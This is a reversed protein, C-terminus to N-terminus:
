PVQGTQDAPIPSTRTLLRESNWCSVQFKDLHTYYIKVNPLFLKSKCIEPIPIFLTTAIFDSELPAMHTTSRRLRISTLEKVDNSILVSNHAM